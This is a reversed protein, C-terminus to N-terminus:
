IDSLVNLASRLCSGTIRAFISQCLALIQRVKSKSHQLLKAHAPSILLTIRGHHQC